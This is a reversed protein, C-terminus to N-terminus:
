TRGASVVGEPDALRGLLWGVAGALAVSGTWVPVPWWIGDTAGATLVYAVATGAGVGAGFAAPRRDFLRFSVAGVAAVLVGALLIRPDRELVWLLAAQIGLLGAVSAAGLRVRRTLWVLVGATVAAYLLIGLVGHEQSMEVLEHSLAPSPGAGPTDLLPQAFQVVFTLTGLLAAGAGLVPPTARSGPVAARIPGAVILVMSVFLLLHPPSVLAEFSEEVGLLTHWVSDAAGGAFFLALGWASLAYGPPLGSRGARAGHVVASAVLGSYLVAHWVTFFSEEGPINRHAWGDLFVGGVIWLSTAAAAVEFWRTGERPATRAEVSTDM